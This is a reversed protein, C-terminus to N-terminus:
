NVMQYIILSVIKKEPRFDVYDLAPLMYICSDDELQFVCRLNEVDPNATKILSMCWPIFSAIAKDDEVKSLKKWLKTM